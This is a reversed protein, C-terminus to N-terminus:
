LLNNNLETENLKNLEDETFCKGILYSSDYYNESRGMSNRATSKTGLADKIDELIENKNMVKLTQKNCLMCMTRIFTLLSIFIFFRLTNTKPREFM